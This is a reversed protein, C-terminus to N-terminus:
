KGRLFTRIEDSLEGAARQMPNPAFGQPRFAALEVYRWAQRLLREAETPPKTTPEPNSGGNLSVPHCETPHNGHCKQCVPRLSM